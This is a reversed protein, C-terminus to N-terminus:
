KGKPPTPTPTGSQRAPPASIPNGYSDVWQGAVMYAGGPVTEDLELAAADAEAQANALSVAQAQAANVGPVMVPPQQPDTTDAM